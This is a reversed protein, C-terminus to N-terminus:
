LKKTKKDISAWLIPFSFFIILFFLYAFPTHMLLYFVLLYIKLAILAYHAYDLRKRLLLYGGFLVLATVLSGWFHVKKAVALGELPATPDREFFYLAFSTGEQLVIPIGDRAHWPQTWIDSAVKSYYAAGDLFSDPNPIVFPLVYFFFIGALLWLGMRFPYAFGKEMWLIVLFLPLWFSLAIRSLLCLLLTLVMGATSKRWIALALFLYFAVPTFEVNHALDNPTLEILLFLIYYPALVTLLILALPLRRPLLYYAWAALSCLFLFFPFYRYDIQLLEPVIYPMWMLPLYNPIVTWSEFPMPAYVTEGALLRQVYYQLAPVIDPTIPYEQFFDQLQSFLQVSLILFPLWLLLHRAWDPLRYQRLVSWDIPRIALLGGMTAVGIGAILFLTPPLYLNETTYRVIIFTYGELAIFSLLLFLFGFPLAKKVVTKKYFFNNIYDWFFVKL